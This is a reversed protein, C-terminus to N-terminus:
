GPETHTRAEQVHGPSMLGDDAIQRQAWAPPKHMQTGHAWPMLTAAVDLSQTLAGLDHLAPHSKPIPAPEGTDLHSRPLHTPWLRATKVPPPLSKQEDTSPSGETVPRSSHSPVPPSPGRHNGAPVQAAAGPGQPASLSGRKVSASHRPLQRLGGAFCGSLSCRGARSPLLAQLVEPQQSWDPEITASCSPVHPGLESSVGSSDDPSFLCLPLPGQSPAQTRTEPSSLRAAPSCAAPGM